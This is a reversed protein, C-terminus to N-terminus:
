KTENSSFGLGVLGAKGTAEMVCNWLDQQDRLLDEATISNSVAATSAATTNKSPPSISKASKSSAKKDTKGESRAKKTPRTKTSEEDEDDVYNLEVHAVDIDEVKVNSSRTKIATSEDKVKELPRPGLSSSPDSPISRTNTTSAALLESETYKSAIPIKALKKNTAQAKVGQLVKLRANTLMMVGELYQVDARTARLLPVPYAPVSAVGYIGSNDQNESSLAGYMRQIEEETAELRHQQLRAEFALQEDSSFGVEQAPPVVLLRSKKYLSHSPVGYTESDVARTNAFDNRLNFNQVNGSIPCTYDNSWLLLETTSAHTNLLDKNTVEGGDTNTGMIIAERLAKQGADYSHNAQLELQKEADSKKKHTQRIRPQGRAIVFCYPSEITQKPPSIVAAGGASGFAARIKAEEQRRKREEMCRKTEAAKREMLQQQEIKAKEVAEIERKKRLRLKEAARQEHHTLLSAPDNYPIVDPGVVGFDDNGLDAYKAKTTESIADLDSDFDSGNDASLFSSTSSFSSFTGSSEESDSSSSVDQRGRKKNKATKGKEPKDPIIKRAKSNDATKVRAIKPKRRMLLLSDDDSDSFNDEDESRDLENPNDDDDLDVDIAKKQRAETTYRKANEAAKRRKEALAAAAAASAKEAEKELIDVDNFAAKYKPYLAEYSSKAIYFHNCDTWLTQLAELETADTNTPPVFSVTPSTIKVGKGKSSSIDTTQKAAMLINMHNMRPRRSFAPYIFVDFAFVSKLDVETTKVSPLNFLIFSSENTTTILHPNAEACRELDTKNTTRYLWAVKLKPRITSVNPAGTPSQPQPAAFLQGALATKVIEANETEHGPSDVCLWFDKDEWVGVAYALRMGFPLQVEM